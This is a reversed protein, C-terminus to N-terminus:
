MQLRHMEHFDNDYFYYLADYIEFILEVDDKTVEEPSEPLEEMMAIVEDATYTTEEVEDALVMTAPIFCAMMIVTLLIGLSKCLVRKM